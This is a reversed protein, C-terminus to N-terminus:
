LGRTVHSIDHGYFSHYSVITQLHDATETQYVAYLVYIALCQYFTLSVAFTFILWLFTQYNSRGVCNNLWDCHHDFDDCCKNCAGCHKTNPGVYSKCISCRFLRLGSEEPM